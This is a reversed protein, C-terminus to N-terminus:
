DKERLRDAVVRVVLAAGLALPVAMAGGLWPMQAASVLFVAVFATLLLAALVMAFILVLMDLPM